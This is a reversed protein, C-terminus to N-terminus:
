TSMRIIKFKSVALFHILKADSKSVYPAIEMLSSVGYPPPLLTLM